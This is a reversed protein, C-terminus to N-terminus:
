EETKQIIEGNPGYKCRGPVEKRPDVEKNHCTQCELKFNDPNLSINPDNCNIDDLWTKYHHVIKGPEVGCAECIGGDIAMREAVYADRTRRWTQTQYFQKQNVGQLGRRNIGARGGAGAYGIGACEFVFFSGLREVWNKVIGNYWM